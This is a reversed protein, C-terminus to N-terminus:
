SARGTSRIRAAYALRLIFLLLSGGFLIAIVLLYNGLYRDQHGGSAVFYTRDSRALVLPYWMILLLTSILLPIRLHLIAARRWYTYRGDQLRGGVVRLLLRDVGTYLPFAVLDHGIVAGAFWILLRVPTPAAIWRSVAYGALAFSALLLVLHLPHSGYLSALRRSRARHPRRILDPM